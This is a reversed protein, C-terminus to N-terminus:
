WSSSEFLRSPKIGGAKSDSVVAWESTGVEVTTVKRNSSNLVTVLLLKYLSLKNQGVTGPPSSLRGHCPPMVAPALLRSTMSNKTCTFCLSGVPLTALCYVRLAQQQLSFGGASNYLLRYMLRGLQHGFNWIHSGISSMEWELWWMIYFSICYINVAKM